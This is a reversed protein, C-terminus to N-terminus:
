KKFERMIMAALNRGITEADDRSGTLVKKHYINENNDRMEIYLGTLELERNNGNNIVAHAAVPQTCGGGLATAFAREAIACDASDKDSIADLYYYDEGARGQCALVGQGASPIMEDVTFYRSIKDSMGLRELGAAALVLMSFEGAELKKLRTQINGRVAVVKKDPFIKALQLRRRLSSCGIINKNESNKNNKNESIILADRPDARKSYAVIPLKENLKMPVDKLSHIALDIDGNLLANELELTFLGKIGTPDTIDAFPKMNVDGTTQMIILEAEIEPHAKTIAEIILNSQAVALASARSGIRIKKTKRELIDGNENETENETEEAVWRAWVNRLRDSLKKTVGPSMGATSVSVSTAGSAILSPFFFSCEGAADAVSVPIKRKKAEIGVTKNVDRNDSATVALMAGDLDEPSFKKNLIKIKHKVDDAYFGSIFEPSVVRVCAGCKLLTKVRRLAIKGGGVVLVDRGEIDILMPFMPPREINLMRRAWLIGEDVTHIESDSDPRAILIVTINADRAANIKEDLGGTHGSDKTVIVEAGTSKILAANMEYSFPGQMAIIHSPSFGIEDCSKLVNAVPLVRAFVRDKYDNVGTFIKLEKSGVTLLVKKDAYETKNLLNAADAASKVIEVKLKDNEEHHYAADRSVRMLPTNNIEACHAASDGRVAPHAQCAAKINETVESAYPHTADIVCTVNESKILDRMGDADLRGVLIKVNEENNDDEGGSPKDDVLDKVVEAGYDTAACYIIGFNGSNLNNLNNVNFTRLASSAQSNLSTILRELIERAETTGGFILLKGM